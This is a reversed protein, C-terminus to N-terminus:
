LVAFASYSKWDFMESLLSTCSARAATSVARTSTRWMRSSIRESPTWIASPSPSCSWLRSVESTATTAGTEPETVSRSTLAPAPTSAPVDSKVM